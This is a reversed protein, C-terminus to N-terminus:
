TGQEFGSLKSVAYTTPVEILDVGVKTGLDVSGRDGPESFAHEQVWGRLMGYVFGSLDLAM